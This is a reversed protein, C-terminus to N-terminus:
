EEKLELEELSRAEREIMKGKAKRLAEIRRELTM